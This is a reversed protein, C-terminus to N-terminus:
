GNQSKEIGVFDTRGVCKATRTTASPWAARPTRRPPPPAPTSSSRPKRARSSTSPASAPVGLPALASVQANAAALARVTMQGAEDIFLDLSGEADDSSRYNVLGVPDLGELELIYAEAIGGLMGIAQDWPKLFPHRM